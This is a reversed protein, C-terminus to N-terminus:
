LFVKKPHLIGKEVQGIGLFDEGAFVAVGQNDKQNIRLRKGQRFDKGKEETLEVQPLEALLPHLDKILAAKPNKAIEELTFAEERKFPGVMTRNLYDMTLLTGAEKGLDRGLARIYTGSSCTCRLSIHTDTIEQIFLEHITVPRAKLEVKKGERALKYAREGNAKIASYASPVQLIEGRFKEAAKEWVSKDEPIKAREIIEGTADETDTAMGIIFRAEYTKTHLPAYEILRTAKGLFVPLVGEAMPDLTGGHGIKKQGYIKRLKAVVDFSTFGKPKIVNVIGDM